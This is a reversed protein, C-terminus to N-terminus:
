SLDTNSLIPMSFDGVETYNIIFANKVTKLIFHMNGIENKCTSVLAQFFNAM